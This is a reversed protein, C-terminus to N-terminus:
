YTTVPEAAVVKPSEVNSNDEEGESADSWDPEAIVTEVGEHVLKAFEDNSLDVQNDRDIAFCLFLVDVTDLFIGALYTFFMMSICGVFTAAFPVVWTNPDVELTSLFRNALIILYVGLVPYWINFLAFFLYAIVLITEDNVGIFTDTDFVNDLWAWASFYIAISFAFSGLTLVSSSAYETVFGGKFHRKLIKFVKKASGLWAQGTFVHLIVSFKTLMLIFMRICHGFLCYLPMLICFLPNCCQKWLAEKLLMRNLKEAITAVLSAASVTGFSATCTNWVARVIGPPNVPHFHWSGIVTAIISLRMMSFLLVSWLYALSIYLVMGSTYSPSQYRCAGEIEVVEVNEFSKSWFTVFLYANTAYLALVPLFACFMSMNEKFSQAAHSLVKGAFILQKRVFIAWGIVGGACVISVVAAGTLGEQFNKITLYLFFAVKVAETAFVIPIAFFRILVIWAMALFLGMFCLTVFVEPAELFADFMGDGPQLKSNPSTTSDGDEQLRRHEEWQLQRKRVANDVTLDDCLDFDFLVIVSNDEIRTACCQEVDNRYYESVVRVTENGADIFEFRPNARAWLTAGCALYSAFAALYVFAWIKDTFVRNEWNVKPPVTESEAVIPRPTQDVETVGDDSRKTESTSAIIDKTTMM